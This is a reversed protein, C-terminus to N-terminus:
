VRHGKFHFTGAEGAHVDGSIISCIDDECRGKFELDIPTPDNVHTKWTVVGEYFHGDTIPAGLGNAHMEGTLVHGDLDVSADAEVEGAPTTITIKYDGHVAM